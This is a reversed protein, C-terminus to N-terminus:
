KGDREAVVEENEVMPFRIMVTKPEGDKSISLEAGNRELVASAVAIGLPMVDKAGDDEVIDTLRDMASPAGAPLQCLLADPPCFQATLPHESICGRTLARFLNELAYTAQEPDVRIRVGPAASYDIDLCQADEVRAASIATNVVDDLDTTRPEPSAMRAFDLLNEVFLDIQDIAQGTMEAFRMEDSEATLLERQCHQAFSKITVLPNKVEHALEHIILQLDGPDGAAPTRDKRTRKPGSLDSSHPPAPRAGDFLLDDADIKDNAQIALTRTLVAELEALNGFWLYRSLRELAATTFIASPRNLRDAIEDAIAEAIVPVDRPRERLPALALELHTLRYFLGVDFAGAEVQEALSSTATSVLRLNSGRERALLDALRRQEHAPWRDVGIALVTTTRKSLASTDPIPSTSDCIVLSGGGCQEHIARAVAHKGAGPEGAIHLSLRRDRAQRAVEVGAPDLFPAMLCWPSRLGDDSLRSAETSLADAVRQRLAAPTFRRPITDVSPESDSALWLCKADPLHASNRLQVPAIVLDPDVPGISDLDAAAVATVQYRRGLLVCLTERM